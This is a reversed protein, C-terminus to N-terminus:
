RAGAVTEWVGFAVGRAQRALDELTGENSVTAWPILSPSWALSESVHADDATLGPRVIKVIVGGANRIADVENPFRVDTVVVPTGPVWEGLSGYGGLRSVHADWLVPEVWASSGVHDRVGVGLRQLFRRVDPIEKAGEWGFVSVAVRLRMTEGDRVVYPDAALAVAKLRDAFALRRYGHSRVLAEAFADKGARKAGVLGILPATM